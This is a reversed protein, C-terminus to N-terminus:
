STHTLLGLETQLVALGRAFDPQLIRQRELSHILSVVAANAPTPVGCRKGAEVVHGNIFDIETDQGKALDQLMSAKLAIHESWVSRYIPMKDAVTEHEHLELATFDVGQMPALRYGSARAAKITEDAIRALIEMAEPHNLVDGFTCGLAASMGSFTANMLLKSWRIGTLNDVITCGGVLRLIEAVRDIRATHKGDIEGVDFGFHALAELSSTLRSHGPGEWTAGFGVTGGVVREAGLHAAVSPEPIGNQLTCIISESHLYPLLAPLARDNHTQKTLLIVMDYLGSMQGPLIAKVPTQIELSGSIKAGQTNLAAVNAENADILVIDCGARACLAGVVIGLAGAGVVALRM